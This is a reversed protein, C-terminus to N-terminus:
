EKRWKKTVSKVRETSSSMDEDEKERDGYDGNNPNMVQNELCITQEEDM